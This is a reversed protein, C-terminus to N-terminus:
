QVLDPPPTGAILLSVAVFFLASGTLVHAHWITIHFPLRESLFFAVGLTYIIGGAAMLGVVPGSLESLLAGGLFVVAWGMGLYLALALWRFREPALMKSLTGVAAAAWLGALLGRANGGSLLIFPTYTGAIKLYIASHDLRRLLGTWRTQGSMNYIGSCTLMLVLTVGYISAGTIAAGSRHLMTWAILAPVALAALAIGIVHVAGDSLREARSYGAPITPAAAHDQCDPPRACAPPLPRRARHTFKAARGVTSNANLTAM